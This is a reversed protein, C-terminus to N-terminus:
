LFISKRKKKRTSHIFTCRLCRLKDQSIITEKCGDCLWGLFFMSPGLCSNSVVCDMECTEWFEGLNKPWAKRYCHVKTKYVFMEVCDHKFRPRLAEGNKNSIWVGTSHGYQQDM